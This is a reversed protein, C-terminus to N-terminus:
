RCELGMEPGAAGVAKLMEAVFDEIEGGEPHAENWGAVLARHFTREARAREIDDKFSQRGQRSLTWPSPCVVREQYALEGEQDLRFPYVSCSGPKFSQISCRRQGDLDLLFTCRDERRRLCLLQYGQRLRIGDAPSAPRLEVFATVPVQLTDAIRRADHATIPIAYSECCDAHCGICPVAGARPHRGRSDETM